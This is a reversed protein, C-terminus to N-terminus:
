TLVDPRRGSGRRNRITDVDDIVLRRGIHLNLSESRASLVKRGAVLLAPRWVMARVRLSPVTLVRLSSLRVRDKTRKAGLQM